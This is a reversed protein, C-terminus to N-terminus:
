GPKGDARPSLYIRMSRLVWPTFALLWGVGAVIQWLPGDSAAESLLRIVAVCQITIFAFWAVGTMHLPQGSHGQTVRTVMAVLLSGFFGITIAHVPGRGLVFEGSIAFVLSQLAFLGFGIPLWGFGILLVSLLGPMPNRPREQADPLQEQTARPRQELRPEVEEMRPTTGGADMGDGHEQSVRVDRHKPWWQWLTFAALLAMPLDAIWLLRYGHMLELLLHAFVLLWWAALLWLPRWMRYGPIVVSAFFPLMRHCVTLYVPLAFGFVAIKIAAFVWLLHSQAHLWAAFLLWALLGMALAAFASLAHWTRGQERWLVGFLAVMSAAWGAISFVTGLHVLHPFGWLGVLMLVQGGFLGLGVPLYHWRSLAPQNMWRPFVTLLFGFMFPALVQLPMMLAHVWGAPIPSQPLALVPWHQGILWLTWWLMMALVNFTGVFFLLRHPAEALRPLAMEPSTNMRVMRMVNSKVCM